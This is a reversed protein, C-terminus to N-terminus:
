LENNINCENWNSNFSYNKLLKPVSNKIVCKDYLKLTRQVGDMKNKIIHLEFPILLVVLKIEYGLVFLSDQQFWFVSTM